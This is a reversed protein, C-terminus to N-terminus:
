WQKSSNNLCGRKGTAANHNLALTVELFRAPATAQRSSYSCENRSYSSVRKM